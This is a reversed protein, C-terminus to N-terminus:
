LYTVSQNGAQKVVRKQDTSDDEGLNEFTSVLNLFSFQTRFKTQHFIIQVTMLQVHLLKKFKSLCEQSFLVTVVNSNILFLLLDIINMITTVIHSLM